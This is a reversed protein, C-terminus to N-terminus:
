PTPRLREVEAAIQEAFRAESFGEAHAKMAEPDWAAALARTIGDAVADVEPGTVYLGNVGEDISDLYGGDQVAVTPIGWASAELPTIGFDEFSIALLAKAHAYAWRLQADSLDQAFVTEEGAIQHLREKEPGRGVVLLRQGTAQAARIAVDVNKYPMLRSVVLLYGGEAWPAAAPIPELAGATDVSHPPFILGVDDMGYVQRIRERVMTSNGVYRTRRRQAARDWVKLFPKMATVVLGKPSRWWPGGLYEETLYVWRAPTHCYVLSPGDFRFGHAWGSSSIVAVVGPARLVASALPLLPLARRHDRRLAGVRNLQSTVIQADRFEPFTGEPDYLTTYIPADPYMRHLALVVREAGGRQTLYDHAIVVDPRDTTM